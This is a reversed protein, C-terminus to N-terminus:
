KSSGQSAGSRGAGAVIIDNRVSRVGEVGRAVTAARNALDQTEVFGSLQVTGQYTTVNVDLARGVGAEKALATKVRATIAADDLVQGAARGSDSTACGSLQVAFVAAGLVLAHFLKTSQM